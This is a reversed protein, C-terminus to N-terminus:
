EQARDSLLCYGEPCYYECKINACRYNSELRVLRSHQEPLSEALVHSARDVPVLYTNTCDLCQVRIRESTEYERLEAELDWATPERTTEIPGSIEFRDGGCKNCRRRFQRGPALESLGIASFEDAIGTGNCLRCIDSENGLLGRGGCYSCSARTLAKGQGRCLACPLEITRRLLGFFASTRQSVLGRGSCRPCERETYL